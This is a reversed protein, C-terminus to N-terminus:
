SHTKGAAALTMEMDTINQQQHHHLAAAATLTMETEKVGQQRQWHLRLVRSMRNSNGTSKSTMTYLARM